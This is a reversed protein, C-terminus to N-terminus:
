RNVGGILPDLNPEALRLVQGPRLTLLTEGAGVRTKWSLRHTGAALDRIEVPAFGVSRGNIALEAWKQSRVELVARAQAGSGPAQARVPAASAIAAVAFTAAIRSLKRRSSRTQLVATQLVTSERQDIARRVLLSLAVRASPVSEIHPFIRKGPERCLSGAESTSFTTARSRCAELSAPIAAFGNGLDYEILGLSFIDAELSSNGGHWLEPALYAPTGRLLAEDSSSTAFDVLKVCGDRDILINQPSLDGHFLGREQLARLGTAAQAVIEDVVGDDLPNARALELVSLGDIWELVLACGESLNEWGLVRVCHPSSVQSLAEFERRLWPVATQSKLIKLAVLQRSHGQSDERIARYVTSSEGQGIVKEIKYVAGEPRLESM